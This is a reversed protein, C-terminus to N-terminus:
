GVKSWAFRGVFALSDFPQRYIMLPVLPKRPGALSYPSLVLMLLSVQRLFQPVVLPPLLVPHSRFMLLFLFAPQFLFTPPLSTTLV